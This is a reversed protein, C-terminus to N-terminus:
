FCACTPDLSGSSHGDQASFVFGTDCYEMGTKPLCYLVADEKPSLSASEFDLDGSAGYFDEASGSGQLAEPVSSRFDGVEVAPGPPVFMPLLATKLAENDPSSLKHLAFLLNGLLGLSMADYGYEAKPPPTQLYSSKFSSLFREYALQAEPSRKLAVGLVRRPLSGQQVAQLIAPSRDRLVYWPKPQGSPWRQEIAQIIQDWPDADSSAVILNPLPTANVIATALGDVTNLPFLRSGAPLVLHSTMSQSPPDTGVVYAVSLQTFQAPYVSALLAGAKLLAPELFQMENLRNPRLAWDFGQQGWMLNQGQQLRPDDATPLILIESDQSAESLSM